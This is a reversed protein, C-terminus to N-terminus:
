VAKATLVKESSVAQQKWEVPQQNQQPLSM